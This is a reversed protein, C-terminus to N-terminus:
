RCPSLSKQPTSCNVVALPLAQDGAESRLRPRYRSRYVPGPAGARGTHELALAVAGTPAATEMGSLQVSAFSLGSVSRTAPWGARPVTETLPVVAVYVGAAAVGPTSVNVITAFSPAASEAGAVTVTAVAATVATGLRLAPGHAM